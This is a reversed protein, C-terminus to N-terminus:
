AVIFKINKGQINTDGALLNSQAKTALLDTIM